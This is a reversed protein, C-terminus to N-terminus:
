TYLLNSGTKQQCQTDEAAFPCRVFEVVVEDHERPYLSNRLAQPDTAKTIDLHNNSPLLSEFSEQCM